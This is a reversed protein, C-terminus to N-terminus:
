KKRKQNKKFLTEKNKRNVPYEEMDRRLLALFWAMFSRRM